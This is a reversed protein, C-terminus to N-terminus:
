NRRNYYYFAMIYILVIGALCFGLLEYPNVMIEPGLVLGVLIIIAILFISINITIHSALRVIHMTREDHPDLGKAKLKAIRREQIYRMIGVGISAGILSTGFAIKGSQINWIGIGLLILITVLIYIYKKRDGM